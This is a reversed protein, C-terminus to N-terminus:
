EPDSLVEVFALRDGTPAVAIRSIPRTPLVASGVGRGMVELRVPRWGTNESWRYLRTKEAMYLSGDPAWAYDQADPRAAVIPAVTKAWLDFRMITAPDGEPTTPRLFSLAQEGPIKAICRGPGTFILELQDGAARASVLQHDADGDGVLFFAAWGPALWAHYGIRDLSPFMQGLDEGDLGYRWLQQVGQRERVVSFSVGDALITPSYENSPTRTVPVPKGTALDVRYIDAQDGRVSTFLLGRGDPLFNPQNDYGAHTTLRRIQTLTITNGRRELEGAYVDTSPVAAATSPPFVVRGGIMTLEVRADLIEAEPVTMIDKSLVVLDAYKGPTISGKIEEEFAAYANNLTYARLAEERTMRQHGYFTEGDALRRTVAAYFNPIPDIDEVPTDTGNTVLTGADMLTRWVYAGSEARSPGLRKLVYPADSTCHVAQMSAILDLERLRPIDQPHLHQAHEIRWRLDKADSQAFAVAYIDLLERNARDGIAHTNLQFGYQLAIEATRAIDSPTDLVLGSHGPLDAYPELLWAGHAGLAGDIQRKIARVTVFGGSEGVIRYAPLKAALVDNSEHRVMVYLRVALEHERALGRLFDITEFSSGADHFTTVGNELCEQSALRAQERRRASRQEAPQLAQDRKQAAAVLEQAAERLGGTPHGSRSRLITGGAPDRTGNDIGALALATANAFSAHGSAHILHVPHHPSVASLSQHVPIGDVNPEPVVDWKEQHWGRGLIWEGPRAVEAAKGVMAVVAEWNSADSLDLVQKAHGLAMFHGHGEIFGPILLRGELEIIRTQSGTLAGIEAMSGVAIIRDGRVAVAEALPFADDMTVIKGGRLVTDAPEVILDPETDPAAPTWAVVQGKGCATWAVISILILRTINQM